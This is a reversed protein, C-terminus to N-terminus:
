KGKRRNRQFRARLDPGNAIRELDTRAHRIDQLAGFLDADTARIIAMAKSPEDLMLSSLIQRLASEPESTVLDPADSLKPLELIDGLAKRLAATESKLEETRRILKAVGDEVSSITPPPKTV